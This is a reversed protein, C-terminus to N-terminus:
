EHIQCRCVLALHPPLDNGFPATDNAVSQRLPRTANLRIDCWDAADGKSVRSRTNDGYHPLTPPQRDRSLEPDAKRNIPAECSMAFGTGIPDWGATSPNNELWRILITWSPARNARKALTRSSALQGVASPAKLTQGLLGPLSRFQPMQSFHRRVRRSSNAAPISSVGASPGLRVGISSHSPSPGTPSRATV